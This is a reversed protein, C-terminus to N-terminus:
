CSTTTFMIFCVYMCVYMFSNHCISFLMSYTIAVYLIIYFFNSHLFSPFPTIFLSSFIPFSPLLPLSLSLSRFPFIHSCFFLCLVLPYLFFNILSNLSKQLSSLSPVVTRINLFVDIFSLSANRWLVFCCSDFDLYQLSFVRIYFKLVVQCNILPFNPFCTMFLIFCFRFFVISKCIFYFIILLFIKVYFVHAKKPCIYLRKREKKKRKLSLFICIIVILFTNWISGDKHHWIFNIPVYLQLFSLIFKWRITNWIFNIREERLVKGNNMKFLFAGLMIPFNPFINRTSETQNFMYKETGDCKVSVLKEQLWCSICLQQSPQM